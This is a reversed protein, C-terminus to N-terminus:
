YVSNIVNSGNVVTAGTAGTPYILRERTPVVLEGTSTGITLGDDSSWVASLGPIELATRSLDVLEINDSWEHAPFSSKKEFTMASFEEAGRIFGTKNSDSVWVGGAVPRIMRVDSGFPFGSASLRFKGFAYPESVWVVPGDAIWMRGMFVAIHSGLPAPYFERLTTNGVHTEVPWASSIGAEIIGNQYRSSYYTKDGVQCFSVREGKELGPRVETLSFDTAIQYIAADSTRDQVVFADGKDCFVSHYVGASLLTQGQRRGIQGTDDIDCNVAEALDAMGTEADYRLRVPDIRNNIGRCGRLLTKFSM